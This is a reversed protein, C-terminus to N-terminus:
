KDICCKKFKIGSGCPCPKNRGVKTFGHDTKSRVNVGTNNNQINVNVLKAHHEINLDVGVDCYSAKGGEMYVAGGDGFHFGTGGHSAECDILRYM